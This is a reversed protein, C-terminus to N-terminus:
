IHILSLCYTGTIGANLAPACEALIQIIMLNKQEIGPFFQGFVQEIMGAQQPHVQVGLQQGAAAVSLDRCVAYKFGRPVEGSQPDWFKSNIIAGLGGEQTIVKQKYSFSDQYSLSTMIMGGPIYIVDGPLQNVDFYPIESGLDYDEILEELQQEFFIFASAPELVEQAEKRLRNFHEPSMLFWRKKGHVLGDVFSETETRLQEGSGSPGFVFQNSAEQRLSSELSMGEPVLHELQKARGAFAARQKELAAFGALSATPRLQFDTMNPDVMSVPLAMECHETQTGGMRRFDPKARLNFCNVLYKETTIFQYELEPQGPEAQKDFSRKEKAKVPSLYRVRAQKNELLKLATFKHQLDSVAAEGASVIFPKSLDVKGAKLLGPLKDAVYKKVRSQSAGRGKLRKVGIQQTFDPSHGAVVTFATPGPNEKKKKEEIEKSAREEAQEKDVNVLTERVKQSATRIWMQTNQSMKNDKAFQMLKDLHDLTTSFEDPEVRMPVYYNQTQMPTTAALVCAATLLLLCSQALRMAPSTAGRVRRQYRDRICMESGVLSRLMEYATKQKFFFFFICYINM